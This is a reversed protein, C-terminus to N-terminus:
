IASISNVIPFLSYYKTVKSTNIPKISTDALSGGELTWRISNTGNYGNTSNWTTSYEVMLIVAAINETTISLGSTDFQDIYLVEGPEVTYSLGSDTLDSLAEGTTDSADKIQPDAKSKKGEVVVDGKQGYPNSSPYNEIVKTTGDNVILDGDGFAGPGSPAGEADSIGVKGYLLIPLGSVLVLGIIIIVCTTKKLFDDLRFKTRNGIKM